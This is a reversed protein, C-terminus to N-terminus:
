DQYFTEGKEAMEVLLPAPAYNDGDELSLWSLKQVINTLGQADAYRLLGGHYPPFGFAYITSLDLQSAKSVIGAKMCKAAENVMPLVLRDQIEEIQRPSEDAKVAAILDPNFLPKKTKKDYVKEGGKGDYLYFGRGSKCGLLGLEKIVQMIAPAKMCEGKAGYMTAMVHAAIDLGVKDLLEFPGVPMGFSTMAKEIDAIPVGKEFLRVAEIMYPALIDNVLFGYEDKTVVTIKNLKMGFARAITLTEFSTQDANVIEVLKMKHVPSFFHIGVVKDPHRAAKALESVKLSSTNTAFIFPETMISELEALCAKKLDMEELVAELVLQCGSMDAYKLTPHLRKMMAGAEDSSLKGRSVLEDILGAIVAVGKDLYDQKIDKLVVEYGAYLAAQAIGAGMLGAGLVGVKKIKLGAFGEPMKKSETEAFYIGTLNKSVDTNSLVGFLDSEEDFLAETPGETASRLILKAAELPALYGKSKARVVGLVMSAVLARLPTETLDGVVQILLKKPKIMVKGYSSLKEMRRKFKPYRKVKGTLAVEEARKLLNDKDVVEDALGMKWASIADQEAGTTVLMIANQVGVLHPLRVTGRFGPMFGLKIEPFGIKTKKDSSVLRYDFELTMESGGGLCLGHIAVVTKYPLAGIKALIKKGFRAGQAAKYDSEASLAKVEDLDAGAIFSDKGSILVLGKVSADVRVQDLVDGLRTLFAGSLVNVKKDPQNLTVVAVGSPLVALTVAKQINLPLEQPAPQPVVPPAEVAEVLVAEGMGGGVCLCAIGRKLGRRRLEEVLTVVVRAGSMGIPHGLAIAGGNVNVKNRDLGPSLKEWLKLCGEAQGAFAENIEVLDIDAFTLNHRKLLKMAAPVPGLGMTRPDVGSVAWDLIKAKPKLGLEKVKKDSALVVACAGDNIGSANGATITRNGLVGRLKGLKEMSTERPHEDRGFFGRGPVYIPDVEVDFRGSKIAAAALTQSRLAFEDQEQRPIGMEDAVRQATASMNVTNTDKIMSMPAFSNDAKEDYLRKVMLVVAIVAVGFLVGESFIAAILATIALVFLALAAKGVPKSSKKQKASKEPKVTPKKGFFMHAILGSSATVAFISLLTITGFISGILGSFVMLLAILAPKAASNIRPGMRPVKLNKELFNQWNDWRLKGPHIFPATSMSEGGGAVILDGHGARIKDTATAISELGSACERGVIMGPTTAPLGEEIWAQRATNTTYGSPRAHGLIVEDIQAPKVKARRIAHKIVHRLLKDVTLSRLGKGLTGIATRSSDILWVSEPQTSETHVTNKPEEEISM